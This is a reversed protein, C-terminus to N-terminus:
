TAADGSSAPMVKGRRNPLYHWWRWEQQWWVDNVYRPDALKQVRAIRSPFPQRWCAENHVVVCCCHSAVLRAFRNMSCCRWSSCANQTAARILLAMYYACTRARASACGHCACRIYRAYAPTRWYQLYDLYALFSADHLYKKPHQALDTAVWLWTFVGICSTGGVGWLVCPWVRLTCALYKPNALCQVFELEVIFRQKSRDESESFAVPKPATSAM